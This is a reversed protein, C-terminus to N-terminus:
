VAVWWKEKIHSFHPFAWGPQTPNLLLSWWWIWSERFGAGIPAELLQPPPFKPNSTGLLVWIRVVTWIQPGLCSEFRWWFRLNELFVWIRLVDSNSTKGFFEFGWFMPIQPERLHSLDEFWWFEFLSLIRLDSNSFRTRGLNLKQFWSFKLNELFVSTRLGRFKLNEFFAWIRLVDSNSPKGFFDFGWMLIPPEGFLSLIRMTQSNSDEWALSLDEFWFRLNELFVWFRLDSNSSRGFSESNSTRGFSEFGWVM